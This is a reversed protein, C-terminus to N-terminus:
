DVLNYWITRFKQPVLNKHIERFFKWEHFYLQSYTMEKYKLGTLRDSKHFNLHSFGIKFTKM